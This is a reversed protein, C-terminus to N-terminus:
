FARDWWPAAPLQAEKKASPAAAMLDVKAVEEGELYACVEGVVQGPVVPAQIFLPARAVVTLEEDGTLPYCLDEAAALPVSIM